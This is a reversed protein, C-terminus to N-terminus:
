AMLVIGAIVLATGLWQNPAPREHFFVFALAVTVVPFAGGLPAVAAVPAVRVGLNFALFAIADTIGAPVAVRWGAQMVNLRKWNFLVFLLVAAFMVARIILLPTFWGLRRSLDALIAAAVGVLVTAGLIEPLGRTFGKGRARVVARWDASALIMGVIIVVVAVSTRPTLREGFVALGIIATIVVNSAFVPSVVSLMGISFARYFLPYVGMLLVFAAGIWAWDTWTWGGIGSVFWPAFALMLALGGVQSWFFARVTGMERSAQAALFDSVGWGLMALLGFLVGSTM